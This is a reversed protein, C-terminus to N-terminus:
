QKRDKWKPNTKCKMVVLPAAGFIFTENVSIIVNENGFSLKVNQLASSFSLCSTYLM